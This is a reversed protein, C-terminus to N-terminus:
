NFTQSNPSVPILRKFILYYNNKDKATDSGYIYEFSIMKTPSELNQIKNFVIDLFCKESDRQYLSDATNIRTKGINIVLAKIRKLFATIIYTNNLYEFMFISKLTNNKEQVM